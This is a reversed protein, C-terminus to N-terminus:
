RAFGFSEANGAEELTRTLGRARELWQPDESLTESAVAEGSARIEGILVGSAASTLDLGGGELHALERADRLSVLLRPGVLSAFAFLFLAGSEDGRAAERLVRALSTVPEFPVEGLHERLALALSGMARAAEYARIVYADRGLTPAVEGLVRYTTEFCAFLHELTSREDPM